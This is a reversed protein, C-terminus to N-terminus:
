NPRKRIYFQNNPQILLNSPSLIVETIQEAWFNNEMHYAHSSDESFSFTLYSKFKLPSNSQTYDAFIGRAKIDSKGKITIKQNLPSPTKVYSHNVAIRTETIFTQPPIFTKERDTKIVGTVNGSGHSYRSGYRYSSSSFTARLKSETPLFSYSKNNLIISSMAWDIFLPKQLKNYVYVNVPGGEGKFQYKLLLTDNELIFENGENKKLDSGLTIYQFTTCNCFLTTALGFFLYNVRKM